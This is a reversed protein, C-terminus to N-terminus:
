AAPTGTRRRRRYAGAVGALGTGLLLMSAPEPSHTANMANDFSFRILFQRGGVSDRIGFNVRASEAGQLGSFLLIDGRHTGEDATVTAAGGAFVASRVLSSDQAFSLGDKNNSTSYGMPVYLPQGVVDLRDDGNLPDLIEVRLTTASGIGELSFTVNYNSWTRLGDMLILGSSGAGTMTVSGLDILRYGDYTTGTQTFGGTSSQVSVSIPDARAAVPLLAALALAGCVRRM